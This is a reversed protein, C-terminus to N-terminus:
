AELKKLKSKMLSRKLPSLYDIILRGHLHDIEHQFIKAAFGEANYTVSEGKENMGKVLVRVPRTVNVRIDPLSLCGEELVDTEESKEIIEPNMLRIPGDGPDIVIVQRLAGVQNAALGVGDKEYMTVEMENLFEKLSVDFETVPEAMQRLVPDPYTVIDFM